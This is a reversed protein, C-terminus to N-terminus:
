AHMALIAFALAAFFATVQIGGPCGASRMSTAGGTGAGTWSGALVAAALAVGTGTWLGAQITMAEGDHALMGRRHLSVNIIRWVKVAAMSM